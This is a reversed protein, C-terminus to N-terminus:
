ANKKVTIERTSGDRAQIIKKVYEPKEGRVRSPQYNDRYQSNEELYLPKESQTYLTDKVLKQEGTEPDIEPIFVDMALMDPPVELQEKERNLQELKEKDETSLVQKAGLTKISNNVKIYQTLGEKDMGMQAINKSKEKKVSKEMLDKGLKHEMEMQEFMQKIVETNKNYFDVRSRNQKFPGLLTIGNNEVTFTSTRFEDQHKIRYNRAEEASNFHDYYIIAYEIDPKECYLSNTIDTLTEYHNVFYRNFHYFVDIPPNVKVMAISDSAMLPAALRHMDKIAGRLKECSKSLIVKKDYIDLQPNDLAESIKLSTEYANKASSYTSLIQDRMYNKTSDETLKKEVAPSRKAVRCIDRILEEKPKRESDKKNESHAGRVHRDPNYNFNKNLFREIVMRSKKIYDNIQNDRETILKKIISPDTVADIKKQYEIELSDCELPRYEFALRYIYGVLSTMLLRRLYEDKYNILSLNIYSKETGIINGFPTMKKIIESLEADSLKNLEESSMKSLSEIDEVTLQKNEM